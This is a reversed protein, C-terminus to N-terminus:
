LSLLHLSWGQCNASFSRCDTSAHSRRKLVMQSTVRAPHLICLEFFNASKEICQKMFKDDPLIRETSINPLENCFTAVVFDAYNASCVSSHRCRTFICTIKAFNAMLWTPLVLPNTMPCKIELVGPGCCECHINGDPSAGIFPHTTSIVLRSDTCVFGRHSTKM